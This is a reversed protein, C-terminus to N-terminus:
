SPPQRHSFDSEALGFDTAKAYSDNQAFPSQSVAAVLRTRTAGEQRGLLSAAVERSLPCM